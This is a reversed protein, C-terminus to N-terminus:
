SKGPEPEDEQEDGGSLADGVKRATKRVEAAAKNANEDVFGREEKFHRQFDQQAQARLVRWREHSSARNSM